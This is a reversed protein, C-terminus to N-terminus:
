SCGTTANSSVTKQERELSQLQNYATKVENLLETHGAFSDVVSLQYNAKNLQQHAHQGHISILLNGLTKLQGAPVM